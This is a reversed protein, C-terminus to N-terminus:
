WGLYRFIFNLVCRKVLMNVKLKNEQEEEAFSALLGESFESV